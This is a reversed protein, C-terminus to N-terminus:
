VMPDMFTPWIRGVQWSHSYFFFSFLFFLFLLLYGNKNAPSLTRQIKSDTPGWERGYNKGKQKFSTGNETVFIVITEKLKKIFPNHFKCKFGFEIIPRSFQLFHLCLNNKLEIDGTINRAPSTGLRFIAKLNSWDSVAPTQKYSQKWILLSINLCTNTETWELDEM